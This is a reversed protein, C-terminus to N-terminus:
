DRRGLEERAVAVNQLLLLNRPHLELAAEYVAIEGEVDGSEGLAAGLNVSAAPYGPRLAIAERYEAIADDRMGWRGYVVGLGFHAEPRSRDLTLAIGYEKAAEELMDKEAYAHGMHAHTRADTPDRVLAAKYAEISLDLEGGGRLANGLFYHGLAFSPKQLVVHSFLTLSNRWIETQRMALPALLAAVIIGGAVTIRARKQEGDRGGQYCWERLIWGVMVLIGVMAVYAYRDSGVYLISAKSANFMNPALAALFFWGGMAPVRHRRGIRLVMVILAVVSAVALLTHPDLVGIGEPAPYLPSLRIPLFVSGLTFMVTHCALLALTVPDTAQLPVTKGIFAIIIFILSLVAHPVLTRVQARAEAWDFLFLLAPVAAASVKGLLGLLLLFVSVAYWGRGHGSRWRVYAVMSALAGATGLLDKRASVWAVAEANLPHVAFLLAAAVAAARHRVIGVCLAYVLVANLAHLLINTVHFPLAGGGGAVWDAHLSLVTLPIYLEPDFTTFAHIVATATSGQIGDNEYVLLGDDFDVFGHTATWGFALVVATALVAIAAVDPSTRFRRLFTAHMRTM